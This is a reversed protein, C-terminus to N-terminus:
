TAQSTTYIGLSVRLCEKWRDFIACNTAHYVNLKFFKFPKFSLVKLKSILTLKFNEDSLDFDPKAKRSEKLAKTEENDNWMSMDTANDQVSKEPPEVHLSCGIISLFKVAFNLLNQPCESGGKYFFIWISLLPNLKYSIHSLCLKGSSSCLILMQSRRVFFGNLVSRHLRLWKTSFTSKLADENAWDASQASVV